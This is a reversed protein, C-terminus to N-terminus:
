SKVEIFKEYLLNKQMGSIQSAVRVADRVSLKGELSDMIKMADHARKEVLASDGCGAIVM